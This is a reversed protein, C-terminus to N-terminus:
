PPSPGPGGGVPALPRRCDPGLSSPPTARPGMIRLPISDITRANSTVDEGTIGDGRTSASVLMGNEYALSIALGDIKPMCFLDPKAGLKVIRDLWEQFEEPAFVDEMSLMPRAHTVKAFKALAKGGVRQTPSDPTILEPYEQEIRYLEHKLSDLASDSITQRDLVHYEYRYRDISERLKEVRQQAEEKTM